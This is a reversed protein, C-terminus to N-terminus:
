APRVRIEVREPAGYRKRAVKEVIQADDRYVVGSLADLVARSLKDVDPRTAPFEPASPKVVGSNRGTGYHAKPRALVFVLEMELPGDLLTLGLRGMQAEAAGAVEQKWPRSNKAADKVIIRGTKPHQFATKSGAPQPHGLVRVVVEAGTEAFGASASLSEASV